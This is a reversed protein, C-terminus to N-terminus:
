TRVQQIIRTGNVRVDAETSNLAVMLNYTYNAFGQLLLCDYTLCTCGIVPLCTCRCLDNIILASKLKVRIDILM